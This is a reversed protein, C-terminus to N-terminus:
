YDTHLWICTDYTIRIFGYALIIYGYADVVVVVEVKVVIYFIHTFSTTCMIKHVYNLLGAFPTCGGGGGPKRQYITNVYYTIYTTSNIHQPINPSPHILQM